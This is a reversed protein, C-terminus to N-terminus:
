RVWDREFVTAIRAIAGPDSIMVGLERNRDLSAASINESGVFAWHHDVLIVKAHIYPAKILHAAVGAARLVALGKVNAKDGTNSILRVQAGRQQAAAIAHEIGSDQVEEAYVLVSRRARGLLALLGARSNTPSVLLNDPSDVYVHNQWDAEFIAEAARVDRANRDVVGFERNHTFASASYNLTLIYAASRDVIMTKEHTLAFRSPAWRVPIDAAALQDYASQNMGPGAAAGYPYHELIVRVTVGSAHAYELDHILTHDTLIYVTLDISAAAARMPRTLPARKDDPEVFLEASALSTSGAATGASKGAIGALDPSFLTPVPRPASPVAAQQSGCGGLLLASVLVLLGLLRRMETV